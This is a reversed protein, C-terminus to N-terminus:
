ERERAIAEGMGMIIFILPTCIIQQYCFLNHAMYAIVCMIVGIIVPKKESCLHNRMVSSVFIGLYATGGFLGYNAYATLWENHACVMRSKSSFADLIEQHYKYAVRHMMDPGPGFLGVLVNDRFVEFFGRVTAEWDGGRGNGWIYTWTLYNNDTSVSEPLRGLTNLVIYIITLVVGVIIM